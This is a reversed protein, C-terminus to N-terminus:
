RPGEAGVIVTAEIDIETRLSNAIFCQRHAVDVLHRVRDESTGPAVRIVPRLSISPSAHAPRRRVDGRRRRGRLGARRGPGPRGRRPLQLLQCSAAALVVLQEPNLLDPDGHFTPDASLRLSQSAPSAGATHGRDFSEYGVGTSGSWHCHVGYRHPDPGGDHVPMPRPYRRGSPASGPEAPPSSSRTTPPETQPETPPEARRRSRRRGGRRGAGRARGPAPGAM